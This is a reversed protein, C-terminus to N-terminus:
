IDGLAHSEKTAFLVIKKPQPVIVKVNAGEPLIEELDQKLSNPEFEGSIVTRMFFHTRDKDVFERNSDINLNYDYFVKSINFVLGKRDECDILIRARNAM